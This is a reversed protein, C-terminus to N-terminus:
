WTKVTAQISRMADRHDEAGHLRFFSVDNRAWEIYLEGDVTRERPSEVPRESPVIEFLFDADDKGVLDHKAFGFQFPFPETPGVNKFWYGWPSKFSLKMSNSSFPFFKDGTILNTYDDLLPRDAAAAATDRLAADTDIKEKKDSFLKKFFGDSEEEAEETEEEVVDEAIVKPEAGKIIKLRQAEAEAQLRRDDDEAARVAVEGEVFSNLLQYFAKKTDFAEFNATFNFKYKKKTNNSFLIIEQIERGLEDGMVNKTGKFNGLSVNPKIKADRKELGTVTFMLFVRGGADNKDTFHMTGDPSTSYQWNSPFVFSFNNTSFRELKSADGQGLLAEDLLHIEDVIFIERMKEARRFGTVSVEQGIFEDLPVITSALLAVLKEEHELRHTAITSVSLDFPLVEGILTERPEEALPAFPDDQVCGAIFLACTFVAILKKMYDTHSSKVRAITGSTPFFAVRHSLKLNQYIVREKVSKITKMLGTINFEGRSKLNSNM